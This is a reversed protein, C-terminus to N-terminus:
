PAPSIHVAANAHPTPRNAAFGAAVAVQRGLVSPEVAELVGFYYVYAEVCAGNLVWFTDDTIAPTVVPTLGGVTSVSGTSLNATGPANAPNLFPFLPRGAADTFGALRGFGKWGMAIITPAEDTAEGVKVSADAIAKWTAAFDAGAALVVHGTSGSITTLLAAELKASRRRNMQDIIIALSNATWTELQLSVNLYGGYTTLKVTDSDAEFKESALEAKELTQVDVGDPFNTDVIFPREFKGASAPTLGLAAALPMRAPYPNIVPGIKPVLTIGGLDGAVPTTDAALTGMHQAARDLPRGALQIVGGTQSARNLATAYRHRADDDRDAHIADYVIEGVTRYPAPPASRNLGSVRNVRDRIEDPMELDTTLVELQRDLAAVKDNCDKIVQLEDDTINRETAEASERIAKARNHMQEREALLRDVTPDSM